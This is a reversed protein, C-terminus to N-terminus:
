RIFLIGNLISSPGKDHLALLFEQLSNEGYPHRLYQDPCDDSNIFESRYLYISAENRDFTFAIDATIM